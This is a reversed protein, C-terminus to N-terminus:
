SHSQLANIPHTGAGVLNGDIRMFSIFGVQGFDAYRENLRLVSMDKVKRIIYKQMDGFLMTTPNTSAVPSAMAQNIVYPYGLITDPANVALGPVWIPRGYKDLLQKIVKLSTDNLM